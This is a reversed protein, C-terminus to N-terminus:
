HLSRYAEELKITTNVITFDQSSNIIKDKTYSNRSNEITKIANAFKIPDNQTIIGAFDPVFERNIDSDVAAIPVGASQAEVISIGQTETLSTMLNIDAIYYFKAIEDHPVKGYFKTRKSLGKKYALNKLETEKAGTGAIALFYDESLEKLANLALEVNKEEALRCVVLLIIKDEPLGLEKKIAGASKTPLKMESFGTPITKFRIKPFKESLIKRVSDSPTIVLDAKSLMDNTAIHSLKKRIKPSVKNLYIDVYSEYSTHYTLVLPAESLKAFLDAFFSIHFPHHAHVIDYHKELAPMLVRLSLPLLPIPYDRSIPNTSAPYRIINKDSDKFGNIEPALITVKHGFKRLQNSFSEVSVAVGNVSPKFTATVM